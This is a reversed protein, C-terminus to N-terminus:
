RTPEHHVWGYVVSHAYNGYKMANFLAADDMGVADDLITIYLNDSNYSPFDIWINKANVSISNDIIDALATKFSYGISRLSNMLIDPSPINKIREAM